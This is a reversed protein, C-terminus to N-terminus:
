FDDPDVADAGGVRGTRKINATKSNGADNPTGAINFNSTKPVPPETEYASISPKYIWKTLDIAIYLNHDDAKLSDNNTVPPNNLDFITATNPNNTNVYVVNAYDPSVNNNPLLLWDIVFTPDSNIGSTNQYKNGSYSVIDNIKYMKKSNWTQNSNTLKVKSNM